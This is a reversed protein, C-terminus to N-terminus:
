TPRDPSRIGQRRRVMEREANKLSISSGGLPSPLPPPSHPKQWGPDRPDM